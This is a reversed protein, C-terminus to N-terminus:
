ETTSPSYEGICDKCTHYGKSIADEVSSFPVKVQIEKTHRCDSKHVIKSRKNGIYDCTVLDSDAQISGSLSITRGDTIAIITGSEMTTWVSCHADTLEKIVDKSPHGYSNKGVSIVAYLPKVTSLFRPITSNDAGHHSVRLVNCTLDDMGTHVLYDLEADKEADAMFLFSVTGYQLRTIICGDNDNGAGMMRHLHLHMNGLDLVENENSVILEAGNKQQKALLNVMRQSSLNDGDFSPAYIKGITCDQLIKTLGGTHDIDDHTIILVDIYNDSSVKHVYPFVINGGNEKPGADILVTHTGDSLLTSDGQGVDIFWVQLGGDEPPLAPAAGDERPPLLFGPWVFAAFAALALVTFAALCILLVPKKM